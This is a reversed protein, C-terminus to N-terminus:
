QIDEVHKRGSSTNQKSRTSSLDKCGAVRNLQGRQSDRDAKKEASTVNSSHRVGGLLRRWRREGTASAAVSYDRSFGRVVARIVRVGRGKKM